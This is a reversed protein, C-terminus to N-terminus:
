RLNYSLSANLSAAFPTLPSPFVLTNKLDGGLRFGFDKSQYKLGLNLDFFQLAAFNVDLGWFSSWGDNPNIRYFSIPIAILREGINFFNWYEVGVGVFLRENRDFAQALLYTGGIRHSLKEDIAWNAFPQTAGGQIVVILKKPPTNDFDLYETDSGALMHYEESLKLLNKHGPKDMREIRGTLGPQEKTLVSLTGIFSKDEVYYRRGNDYRAQKEYKLEVLSKSGVRAFYRDGKSGDQFHFFDLECDVIYELFVRIGDVEYSVYYKGELIRYSLLDTPLFREAEADLAPKFDCFQSHNRAEDIKVYGKLSDANQKVLVGEKYLDQAFSCQLATITFLFAFQIRMWCQYGKLMAYTEYAALISFSLQRSFRTLNSDM